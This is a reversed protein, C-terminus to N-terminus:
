FRQRRAVCLLVQATVNESWVLPLTKAETRGKGGEGERAPFCGFRQLAKSIGPIVATISTYLPVAGTKM